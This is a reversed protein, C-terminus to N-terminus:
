RRGDQEARLTEQELTQETLARLNFALDKAIPVSLKAARALDYTATSLATLFSKRRHLPMLQM